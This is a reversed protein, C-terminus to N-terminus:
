LNRSLDIHRFYVCELKQQLQKTVLKWCGSLLMSNKLNQFYCFPEIKRSSEGYKNYAFQYACDFLKEM